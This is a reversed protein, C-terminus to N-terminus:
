RGKMGSQTSQDDERTVAAFRRVPTRPHFVWAVVSNANGVPLRVAPGEAGHHHGSGRVARAVAEEGRRWGPAGARRKNCGRDARDGVVGATADKRGKTIPNISKHRCKQSWGM